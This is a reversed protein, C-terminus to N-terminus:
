DVAEEGVDFCGEACADSAYFVRVFGALLLGQSLAPVTM